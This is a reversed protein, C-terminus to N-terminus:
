DPRRRGMVKGEVALRRRVEKPDALLPRQVELRDGERLGLEPAVIRGAIGLTLSRGILEPRQQLLGSARLADAATAGEGVELAILWQRDRLAYAVEVKM